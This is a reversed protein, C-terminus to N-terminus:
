KKVIFFGESNVGEEFVVQDRKFPMVQCFSAIEQHYEDALTSFMTNNAIIKKIQEAM